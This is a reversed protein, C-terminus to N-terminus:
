ALQADRPQRWRPAPRRMRYRRVDTGHALTTPGADIPWRRRAAVVLLNALFALWVAVLPIYVVATRESGTGAGTEGGSGSQRVRDTANCSGPRSVRPSDEHGGG